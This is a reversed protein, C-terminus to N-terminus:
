KEVIKEFYDFHYTPSDPPRYWTSIILSRTRPKTIEVTLYELEDSSLEECIKYNLNYRVYICVGGGHRGDERVIEYSLIYVENDNISSDLKTENISVIDINSDNM